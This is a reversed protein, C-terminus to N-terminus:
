QNLNINQINLKSFMLLLLALHCERVIYDSEEPNVNRKYYPYKKYWNRLIGSIDENSIEVRESAILGKGKKGILTHYLSIMYQQIGITKFVKMLLGKTSSQRKESVINNAFLINMTNTDPNYKRYNSHSFFPVQLTAPCLKQIVSLQLKAEDRMHIPIFAYKVIQMNGLLALSYRHQNCVNMKHVDSTIRKYFEYVLTYDYPINGDKDLYSSLLITLKRVMYDRYKSYKNGLIRKISDTIQMYKADELDGLSINKEKINESYSANRFLEGYFNWFVIPEEINEFSKKLNPTITSFHDLLGYKEIYVDWESTLDRENKFNMIKIPLNFKEALMTDVKLDDVETYSISSNGVGYYLHPKVSCSLMAALTTRADIGGTMCIAVNDGFNNKIINTQDQIVNKLEESIINFQRNDIRFNHSPITCLRFNNNGLNIEGYRESTLNKFENFITDEGIISLHMEQLLNFENVHCQFPAFRAMEYLMNSIIFEGTEINHYFHCYHIGMEDTVFRIIEKHKITLVFHGIMKNRIAVIDQSSKYDEYIKRIAEENIKGEYFFTGIIAVYDDGFSIFNTHEICLKKFVACEIMGNKESHYKSFGVSECHAVFKDAVNPINSIIIRSM